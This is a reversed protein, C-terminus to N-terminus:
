GYQVSRGSRRGPACLPALTPPIGLFPVAPGHGPRRDCARRERDDPGAVRCEGDAGAEPRFRGAQRNEFDSAAPDTQPRDREWLGRTWKLEGDILLAEGDEEIPVWEGIVDKQRLMLEFQLAQALAITPEKMRRAMAIVAQAQEFTIRQKRKPSGPFRLASMVQRIRACERDELITLGFGFV